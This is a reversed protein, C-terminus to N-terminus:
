PCSTSAYDMTCWPRRQFQPLMNKKPTDPILEREIFWILPVTSPLFGAGTSITLRGSNVPNQVDWTTIAPNRGGIRTAFGCSRDTRFRLIWWLSALTFHWTPLQQTFIHKFGNSRVNTRPTKIVTYGMYIYIYMCINCQTSSNSLHQYINTITPLMSKTIIRDNTRKKWKRTTFFM